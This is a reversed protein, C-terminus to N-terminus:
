LVKLRSESIKIKAEGEALIRIKSLDIFLREGDICDLGYTFSSSGSVILTESLLYYDVRDATGLLMESESVNHYTVNVSVEASIWHELGKMVVRSCRIELAGSNVRVDGTLIVHENKEDYIADDGRAIVPGQKVLVPGKARLLRTRADLQFSDASIDIVNSTPEVAGLGLGFLVVGGWVFLMRRVM